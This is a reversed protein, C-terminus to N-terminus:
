RNSLTHAHISFFQLIQSHQPEAGLPLPTASMPRSIHGEGCTNDQEIQDYTL